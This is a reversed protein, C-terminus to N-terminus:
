MCHGEDSDQSRQMRFTNLKFKRSSLTSKNSERSQRRRFADDTLTQAASFPANLDQPLKLRQKNTQRNTNLEASRESADPVGQRLDEVDEQEEHEAEEDEGEHSQLQQAFPSVVNLKKLETRNMLQLQVLQSKM